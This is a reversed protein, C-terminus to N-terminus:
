NKLAALAEAEDKTLRKNNLKRGEIVDFRGFGISVIHRDALGASPAPPYVAIKGIDIMRRHNHFAKIQAATLPQGPKYRRESDTFALRVYGGGIENSGILLMPYVKQKCLRSLPAILRM